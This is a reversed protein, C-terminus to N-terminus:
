ENEKIAALDDAFRKSLLRDLLSIEGTLRLIESQAQASLVQPSLHFLREMLRQKHRSLHCIIEQWQPDTRLWLEWTKSEM